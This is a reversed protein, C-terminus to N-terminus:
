VVVPVHTGQVDFAWHPPVVGTQLVTACTQRAQAPSESHEPAVGAQSDLPAQPWHEAVLAVAHVPAVGSHKVAVLVHTVHRALASQEPVVGTHLPVVWVQWAHVASLWHPPAVGAHWGPPEQPWHEAVFAVAQEPAVGAQKVALPVHTGQVELAWHPPVVGTQLVVVWTQRAQAPSPSHPPVAGAQWGPPAQPWHEAELAVAQEPAVGTQKVAVPVQTGQVELAWHPPVVGTQLVVVWTHRAQAPSPSHPPAVGAHSALPAQPCHETVLAVAHVPPVGNQKVAVLVHTLQKFLPLQEPVVGIQLPAVCVHRVQAASASHGAAVGAQWPLPAQAWHEAVFVVIHVPAIGAQSVALAVQTGQMEFAFQPPVLGTQLVVVWAQRAQPESASHGLAVGAQWLLPAQAWHEAVFTVLHEPPVGAQRVVVPVQTGQV